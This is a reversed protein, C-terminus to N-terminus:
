FFLDLNMYSSQCLRADFVRYNTTKRSGTKRSREQFRGFIVVEVEDGHIILVPCKIESLLKDQDVSKMEDVVEADIWMLQKKNKLYNISPM